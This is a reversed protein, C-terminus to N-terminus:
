PLECCGHGGLVEDDSGKDKHKEGGDNDGREKAEEKIKEPSTVGAAGEGAATRDQYVEIGPESGAISGDSEEKVGADVEDEPDEDQSEDGDGSDTDLRTAWKTEVSSTVGGSGKEDAEDDKGGSKEQGDNDDIKKGEAAMKVDDGVGLLHIEGTTMVLTNPNSLSAARAEWIVRDVIMMRAGRNRLYKAITVKHAVTAGLVESFLSAHEGLMSTEALVIISSDTDTIMERSIMLEALLVFMM